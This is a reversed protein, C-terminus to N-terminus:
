GGEVDVCAFAHGREIAAFRARRLAEESRPWPAPVMIPAVGLALAARLRHTGEFTFWAGSEKDFYARIRPAGRRRMEHIVGLLHILSYREHPPTVIVPLPPM